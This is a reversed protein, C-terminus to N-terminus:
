EVPRGSRQGQQGLIRAVDPAVMAALTAYVSGPLANVSAMFGGAWVGGTTTGAQQLETTAKKMETGLTAVIAVGIGSMGGVFGAQFSQASTEGETGLAPVGAAQGVAGQVAAKVGPGRVGQHALDAMVDAVLKDMAAKAALKERVQAEIAGKDLLSFDTGKQFDTAARKAFERLADEGAAIVSDPILGMQQLPALWQSQFGNMAVDWMRGFNAAPGNPDYGGAMGAPKTLDVLGKTGSLSANILGTVTGELESLAKNYTNVGTTTKRLAEDQDDFKQTFAAMRIAAIDVPLGALTAGYAEIAVRRDEYIVIARDAGVDGALREAASAAQNLADQTASLAGTVDPLAGMAAGLLAFAAGANGVSVAAIDALTGIDGMAAAAALLGAGADSSTIGVRGMMELYAAVSASSKAMVADQDAFKQTFVAMRVAAEETPLGVLTEGYDEIAAKRDRYIAIAQDAGVDGAMRMAASAAQSLASNIADLAGEGAVADASLSSMASGLLAFAAAANGVSATAIDALMGVDGMAAASMLLAAPGNGILEQYAREAAAVDELSTSYDDVYPTVVMLAARLRLVGEEFEPQTLEGRMFADRLNDWQERITQLSEEDLEGKFSIPKGAAEDFAAYIDRAAKETVAKTEIFVGVSKVVPEIVPFTSRGAEATANAIAVKLQEWATKQDAIVPQAERMVATSLAYRKEFDTLEQTTKGISTAYDEYVQRTNLIINLNDLIRPSLRGLGIVLDSFARETSLGARRGRDQAVELLKTIDEQSKAVGFDLARMGNQMLSMDSISGNSAARMSQMLGTASMGMRGSMKDFAEELRAASLGIAIFSKDSVSVLDNLQRQFEGFLVGSGLGM